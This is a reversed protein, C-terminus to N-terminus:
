RFLYLDAIVPVANVHNLGHAVLGEHALGAIRVALDRQTALSVVALLAITATSPRPLKAGHNM